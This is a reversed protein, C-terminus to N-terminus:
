LPPFVLCGDFLASTLMTNLLVFFSNGIFASVTFIDLITFWFPSLVYLIFSSFFDLVSTSSSIDKAFISGSPCLTISCPSMIFNTSM